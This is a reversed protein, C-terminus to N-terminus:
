WQAVATLIEFVILYIFVTNESEAMKLLTAKERLLSIKQKKMTERYQNKRTQWIFATWVILIIKVLNMSM